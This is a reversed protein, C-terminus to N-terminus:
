AAVKERLRDMWGNHEEAPEPQAFGLRQGVAQAGRRVVEAAVLGKAVDMWGNHEEVPEPQAFGLHQGVAQAGRRVVEAAALGKAAEVAVAAARGVQQVPLLARKLPRQDMLKQELIASTVTMVSGAVLNGVAVVRLGILGEKAVEPTHTTPTLGDEMPTRDDPTSEATKRNFIGGVLTLAVVSGVAWDHVRAVTRLEPSSFRPDTIRMAAWTGGLTLASGLGFPIFNEWAQNVVAGRDSPNRAARAAPNLAAIGFVNGGFWISAAMDHAAHIAIRTNENIM